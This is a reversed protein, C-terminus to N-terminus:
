KTRANDTFKTTCFDQVAVTAPLPFLPLGRKFEVTDKILTVDEEVTQDMQDVHAKSFVQISLKNRHPSGKCVYRDLFILVQNKTAVKVYEAIRQYKHFMYNRKTIADWYRTSEEGLNKNQELFNKVVADVNTKFDDITMHVLTTRFRELFAEVRKDLHLPDFADSQIMVLLGKIDDGSTSISTHVLYGLQEETRLENFAPEKILHHVLALLANDVLALPGMQYIVELCSNTNEPNFEEFRYVHERGQTLQVVRQEPVAFPVSPALSDLLSMTLSKAQEPTVNGHVLAELHFRGLFRNYFEELQSKSVSALAEVKQETTWKTELLVLDAGYMAHQYPPSVAFNDLQRKMKDSLRDLLDQTLTTTMDKMTLLLRALLRDMKHSYGSMHLEIGTRTASFYSHLGAMSALYTFENCHETLINCVLSTLVTGLPSEYAVPSRLTGLFNVKPMSFVNDPKYWLRCTPADMLLTPHDKPLADNTYVEFMTPIMDNQEPLKMKPTMWDTEVNAVTLKGVLTDDLAQDSYETGYWQEVHDTTGEIEKASVLIIVNDPRLYSLCKTINAANYEYIRYSGSLVHETPFQHMKCALASTYDMPDSKSLFQFTIDAITATEHHIWEQPGVERLLNLYAFICEMVQEKAVLGSETLTVSISFQSWDSCSRSEGASLDHAWHREKLLSLISGTGEHGLLHALYRTPKSLYMSDVECMPFLLELSISSRVPVVSLLKPLTGRFPEGPFIEVPYDKNPVDTFYTEVWSQLQASDEKGYVVLMMRNASYQADYFGHVQDRIGEVALTATNGSGFKCYPHDPRSQSKVLQFSRWYDTQLNKAHESDVAQRERDVSDEKLLPAVFFQAFRDLAGELQDASVDLYYNTHELDTYANSNGGHSNLYKNYDNEDPYKSTGMFLMHELFHAIGHITDSYQGVNIDLAASAKDTTPDSIVLCTLKNPLTFSHYIREDKLSREISNTTANTAM